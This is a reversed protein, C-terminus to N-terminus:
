FNEDYSDQWCFANELHRMSKLFRAGNKLYYILEIVDFRPQLEINKKSLYDLATKVIKKQKFFNVAELGSIISGIKRVKVEIFVINAGKEAIIDIEGYRSHYNRDLIKYNNRTLYGCVISEGLNGLTKSHTM